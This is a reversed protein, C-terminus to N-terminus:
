ARPVQKRWLLVDSSHEHVRAGRGSSTHKADHRVVCMTAPDIWLVSQLERKGAPLVAEGLAEIRFAKFRGAPM